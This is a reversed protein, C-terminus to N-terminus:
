RLEDLGFDSIAPDLIQILEALELIVRLIPRKAFCPSINLVLILLIECLQQEFCRSNLQVRIGDKINEDLSQVFVFALQEFNQVDYPEVLPNLGTRSLFDDRTRTHKTGLGRWTVEHGFQDDFQNM